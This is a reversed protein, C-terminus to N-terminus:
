ESTAKEAAKTSVASYGRDSFVRDVHDAFASDFWDRHELWYDFHAQSDDGPHSSRDWRQWVREEIFGQKWHLYASEWNVFEFTFYTNARLQEDLTLPEQKLNAKVIIQALDANTLLTGEADFVHGVLTEHVQTRLAKTNQRVQYGVYILSLVVAVAGVIEALAGM